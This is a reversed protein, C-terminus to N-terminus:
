IRVAGVAILAELDELPLEAWDAIQELWSGEPRQPRDNIRTGSPRVAPGPMLVDAGHESVVPVFFERAALQPNVLVEAPDLLPCISVGFRQGDEYLEERTHDGIFREFLRRFADIGAASGRFSSDAWQEGALMAFDPGGRATVWEALRDWGLAAGGMGAVVYIYGDACKYIGTGAEMPSSGRPQRVHGELDYYQVANELSHAVAQQASVDVLMGKGTSGRDLLAAMAAVWAHLATMFVSQDGFPRVPHGADNGCISLFGGAALMTLDTAPFDAWPGTLGFPTASVYVLRPNDRMVAEHTMGLRRQAAPGLSTLLVDAGATLRGLAEAGSRVLPDIAVSRKMFDLYLDAASEGTPIVPGSESYAPPGLGELVIKVVDAGGEAFLRGTYRALDAHVELVRLDDLSGPIM